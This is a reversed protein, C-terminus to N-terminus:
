LPIVCAIYEPPIVGHSNGRSLVLGSHASACKIGAQPYSAFSLRFPFGSVPCPVHVIACLDLKLAITCGSGSFILSPFAQSQFFLHQPRFAFFAERERFDRRPGPPHPKSSM